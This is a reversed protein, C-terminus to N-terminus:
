RIVCYIIRGLPHGNYNYQSTIGEDVTFSNQVFEELVAIRATYNVNIDQVPDTGSNNTQGSNSIKSGTITKAIPDYKKLRDIAYSVFVGLSLYNGFLSLGRGYESSTHSTGDKDQNYFAKWAKDVEGSQDDLNVNQPLNSNFNKNLFKRIDEDTATNKANKLDISGLYGAAKKRLVIWVPDSSDPKIANLLRPLTKGGWYSDRNDKFSGFFGQGDIFIPYVTERVYLDSMKSYAYVVEEIYDDISKQNPFNDSLWNLVEANVTM